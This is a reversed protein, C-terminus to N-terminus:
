LELSVFTLPNVNTEGVKVSFHLHPGTSRGTSGVFGIVDGKSVTDYLELNFESLHMYVTFIGLGHDLIVTNGGFFLEDRLVVTGTNSAKVEDGQVGSIDIGKHVSVRKKNIIRKVGFGTTIENELPLIFGSEWLKQSETKFIKKLRLSEIKVRRINEDSLFVMEDSLTLERVPFRTERVTLPMIRKKGGINVKVKYKGPKFNLDVAGIALFCGEGCTSFHFKKKGLSATPQHNIDDGNVKIIFAEGQGVEDPFIGVQFLEGSVFSPPFFLIFLFVTIKFQNM